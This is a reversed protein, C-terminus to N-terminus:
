ESEVRNIWGSIVNREYDSGADDMMRELKDVIRDKISHRSYGNSNSVFRGTRMSRMGRRYSGNHDYSESYEDDEGNKFKYIKEILCLADTASKIEAANLEPKKVLKELETTVAEELRELVKEIEM